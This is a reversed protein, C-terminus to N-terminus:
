RIWSMQGVTVVRPLSASRPRMKAVQPTALPPGDGVTDDVAAIRTTITPEDPCRAIASSPRPMRQSRAKNRL